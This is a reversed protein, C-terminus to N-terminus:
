LYSCVANQKSLLVTDGQSATIIDLAIRSQFVTKRILFMATNLLSLNQQSDKLAQQTFKTLGEIHEM